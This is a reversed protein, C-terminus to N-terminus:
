LRYNRHRDRSWIAHALAIAALAIVILVGFELLTPDEIIVETGDEGHRIEITEEEAEAEDQIM